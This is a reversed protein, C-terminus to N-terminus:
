RSAHHTEPTLDAALPRVLACAIADVAGGDPDLAIDFHVVARDRVRLLGGFRRPPSIGFETPRVAYSGVVHLSGLSDQRVTATTVVPRKVGAITVFGAIRAVPSPARLDVEYTTLRFDISPYRAGNLTEHLHRSMIGIGCDLTAVTVALSASPLTNEGSLAPGLTTVARLDLAGSLQGANCTFRRINSAGTIWVRSEPRIPTEPEAAGVSCFPTAFVFLLAGVHAIRM